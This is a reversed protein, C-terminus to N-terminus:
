QCQIFSFDFIFLICIYTFPVGGIRGKTVKLERMNNDVFPLGGSRGKIVMLERMNDVFPVGGTRGKTIKLERM